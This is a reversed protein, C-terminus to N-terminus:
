RLSSLAMLTMGIFFTLFQFLGFFSSIHDVLNANNWNIYLRVMSYLFLIGFIISLGELVWGYILLNENPVTNDKKLSISIGVIGTGLTILLKSTDILIANAKMLIDDGPSELDGDYLRSSFWRDFPSLKNKVKPTKSDNM